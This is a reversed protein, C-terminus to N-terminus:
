YHRHAAAGLNCGRVNRPLSLEEIPLSDHPFIIGCYLRRESSLDLVAWCCEFVRMFAKSHFSKAVM